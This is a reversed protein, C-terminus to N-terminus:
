EGGSLMAILAAAQEWLGAAQLADKAENLAFGLSPDPARQLLLFAERALEASAGQTLVVDVLTSSPARDFCKVLTSLYSRASEEDGSVEKACSVLVPAATQELWEWREPDSVISSARAYALATVRKEQCDSVENMLAKLSVLGGQDSNDGLAFILMLRRTADAEDNLAELLAAQQTGRPLRGLARIATPKLSPTEDDGLIQRMVQTVSQAVVETLHGDRLPRELAAAAVRTPLDAQGSQVQTACADLHLGAAIEARLMVYPQWQDNALAVHVEELYSDFTTLDPLPVGPLPPESTIDGQGTDAAGEPGLTDLSGQVTDGDDQQCGLLLCASLSAWLLWIASSNSHLSLTSGM